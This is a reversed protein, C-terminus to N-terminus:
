NERVLQTAVLKSIENNKNEEEEDMWEIETLSVMFESFNHANISAHVCSIPLLAIWETVILCLFSMLNNFYTRLSRCQEIINLASTYMMSPLTM